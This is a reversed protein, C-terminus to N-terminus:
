IKIVSVVFCQILRATIKVQANSDHVLGTINTDLKYADLITVGPFMKGGAPFVRKRNSPINTRCTGQLVVFGTVCCKATERIQADLIATSM